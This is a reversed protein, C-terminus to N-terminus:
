HTSEYHRPSWKSQQATLRGGKGVAREGYAPQSSINRVKQNARLGDEEPDQVVGSLYTENQNFYKM